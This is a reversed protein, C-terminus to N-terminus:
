QLYAFQVFQFQISMSPNTIACLMACANYGERMIAHSATGALNAGEKAEQALTAYRACAYAIDQAFTCVGVSPLCNPM